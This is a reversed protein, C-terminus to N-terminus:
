QRAEQLAAQQGHSGRERLADIKSVEVINSRSFKHRPTSSKETLGTYALYFQRFSVLNSRSFGKGRRTALDGVLTDMLAKGYEVRLPEGQELEVIHHGIQRDTQVFHANVTHMALMRGQTYTDSIQELLQRYGDSHILPTSLEM